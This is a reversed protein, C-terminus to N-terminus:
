ETASVFKFNKNVLRIVSIYVTLGVAIFIAVIGVQWLIQTRIWQVIETADVDSGLLGVVDGANNFIPAYVSILAGWEEQQDITGILTTGTNFAKMAASDFFALDESDGLESFLEGGPVDSGDIVYMFMTGEVQAKTYLYMVNTEKKIELLKQQTEIYYPDSTDMTRAIREFSDGDILEMASNVAPMAYHFGLFRTLTNVQLLSTIIFVSFVALLFFVFFFTIRYKLSSSNKELKELFKIEM